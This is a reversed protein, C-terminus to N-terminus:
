AIALLGSASTTPSFDLVICRAARWQIRELSVANASSSGLSATYEIMPQVLGRYCNTHVKTPCGTCSPVSKNAKVSSAQINWHLDKTLDVGLYKASGSHIQLAQGRLTYNVITPQKKKSITLIHCKDASHCKDACFNM